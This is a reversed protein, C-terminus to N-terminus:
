LPRRREHDWIHGAATYTGYYTRLIYTSRDAPNPPILSGIGIFITVGLASYSYGTNGYERRGVVHINRANSKEGKGLHVQQWPGGAVSVPVILAISPHESNVRRLLRAVSNPQSLIM